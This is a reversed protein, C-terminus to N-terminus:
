SGYPPAIGQCEPTVGRRKKKAPALSPGGTPLQAATAAPIRIVSADAARVPTLEPLTAEILRLSNPTAGPGEVVVDVHHALLFRRFAAAGGPPRVGALARYDWYWRCDAPIIHHGTWGGIMRFAFGTEAQWLM